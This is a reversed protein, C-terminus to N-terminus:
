SLSKRFVELQEHFSNLLNPDTIGDSFNAKFSPLSFVGNIKAGRHPLIEQATKLVSAGGRGGPSTAMVMMPKDGWIPKGIRSIWDYINKFAVSFAGNHEAFSIIIGDCESVLKKFDHALDPIGNEKEEGVGFLPMEFDGLRIEIKKIDSLEDAAWSALQHNISNPSNSAGFVLIRKM